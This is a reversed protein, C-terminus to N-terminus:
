KLIVGPIYCTVCKVYFMECSGRKSTRGLSVWGDVNVTEVVIKQLLIPGTNNVGASLLM